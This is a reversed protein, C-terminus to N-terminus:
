RGASRLPTPRANESTCGNDHPRLVLPALARWTRIVEERDVDYPTWSTVYFLGRLMYHSLEVFRRVEDRSYGSEVLTETWIGDLIGRTEKIIPYVICALDKDARAAILVETMAMYAPMFFFEESSQLFRDVPQVSAKATRALSEAHDIAQDMAQQTAAAVLDIKRPYYHELAGRSVGARAAVGSASFRSYGETILLDLAADMVMAKTQARREAQTRRRKAAASNVQM